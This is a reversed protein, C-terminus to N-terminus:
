IIKCSMDPGTMQSKRCNSPQDIWLGHVISFQELLSQIRETHQLLMLVEPDMDYSHLEDILPDIRGRHIWILLTYSM